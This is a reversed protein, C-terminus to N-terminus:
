TLSIKELVVKTIMYTPKIGEQGMAGAALTHGTKL